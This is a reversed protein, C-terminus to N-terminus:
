RSRRPKYERILGLRMLARACLSFVLLLCAAAGVTAAAAYWWASHQGTRATHGFEIAARVLFVWAGAAVLGALLLLLGRM